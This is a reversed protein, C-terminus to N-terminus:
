RKRLIPYTKGDKVFDDLLNWTALGDDSNPELLYFALRALPQKLSVAFSGAPASADAAAQWTGELTRLGHQGFDISKPQVPRTTNNTIVFQEVGRVPETLKRLQIGHSRLLELAQTAEAPVYYESAAVEVAAPEFWLMDVMQEPKSVDKRKYMVAGSVPNTEEEVEGMLIEIMGGRKLRGRTALTKGIVVESDAAATAKKIRDANQAAFNLGEEVFYNTAKIRDEFTLYSYAESLLAFRNRMGVYSNHFRPVHEFSAWTRPGAPQEPPPAAAAPAGARAASARPMPVNGYYFTDWKHKAKMNKTIFPFWEGTMLKMIQDSTNPNLPPAYTLHYAHYSGNSTHLDYGIHPDYDNWLKVFAKAEPTELKMFDRNINLNQGQFRTGMGNIPGHQRGRNTPSMKENGDANFIPTVIFVMSKLWDGHQGTAFERLLMLSSEKGEVERAHINAQIHIRLRGTGRVTAPSPDKLGTGVIAAPMERGEFTKGYSTYFILPSAADVAKMFKVVDDYSSTSKFDTAEATTKLNAVSAQAQRAIGWAGTASMLAVVTAIVRFM